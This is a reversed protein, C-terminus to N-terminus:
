ALKLNRSFQPINGLHFKHFYLLLCLLDSCQQPPQALRFFFRNPMIAKVIYTENCRPAKFSHNTDLINATPQSM